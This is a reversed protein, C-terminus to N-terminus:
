MPLAFLLSTDFGVVDTNGMPVRKSLIKLNKGVFGLNGTGSFTLNGMKVTNSSM